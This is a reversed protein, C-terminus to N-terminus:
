KIIVFTRRSRQHNHVPEEQSVLTRHQAPPRRRRTRACLTPALAGRWRLLMAASATSHTTSAARASARSRQVASRSASAPARLEANHARCRMTAATSLWATKVVAAAAQLLNTRWDISPGSDIACLKPWGSLELILGHTM